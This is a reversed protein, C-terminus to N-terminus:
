LRKAVAAGFQSAGFVVKRWSSGVWRFGVWPMPGDAARKRAEDRHHVEDECCCELLYKLSKRAECNGGLDRIENELRRIQSQYHEEVFSEVADTTLFMGRPNFLTSFFGLSYGAMRWMPLLASRDGRILRRDDLIQNLLVLHTRESEEHERAFELLKDEYESRKLIKERLRIANKCGLYICVAGTEGAHNSRMESKLWKDFPKLSRISEADIEIKRGLRRFGSKEGEDDESLEVLVASDAENEFHTACAEQLM